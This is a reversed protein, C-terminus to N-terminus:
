LVNERRGLIVVAKADTEVFAKAISKGVSQNGGTVVVVKGVASNALNKPDIAPYSSRHITKTYPPFEWNTSPAM